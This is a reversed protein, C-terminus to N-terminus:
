TWEDHPLSLLTRRVEKRIQTKEKRIPFLQTQTQNPLLREGDFYHPLVGQTVKAYM